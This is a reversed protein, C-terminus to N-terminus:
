LRLCSVSVSVSLRVPAEPEIPYVVFTISDEPDDKTYGGAGSGAARRRRALREQKAQSESLERAMRGQLMEYPMSQRTLHNDWLKVRRDRRGHHILSPYFQKVEQMWRTYQENSMTLIIYKDLDQPNGEPNLIFDRGVPVHELVVNPRLELAVYARDTEKDLFDRYSV